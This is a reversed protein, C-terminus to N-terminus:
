YPLVDTEVNQNWKNQVQKTFMYMNCSLSKSVFYNPLVLLLSNDYKLQTMLFQLLLWVVCTVVHAVKENWSITFHDSFLCLYSCKFTVNQVVNPLRGLKFLFGVCNM